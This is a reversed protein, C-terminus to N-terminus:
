CLTRHICQHLKCPETGGILNLVVVARVLVLSIGSYCEKASIM